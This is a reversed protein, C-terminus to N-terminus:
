AGIDCQWRLKGTRAPQRRTTVKGSAGQRHGAASVDICPIGAM